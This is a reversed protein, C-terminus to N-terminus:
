ILTLTRSLLIAHFWILSTLLGNIILTKGTFSLDRMKWMNCINRLKHIRANRTLHSCDINGFYLGLIKDPIYDNYWDFDQLRDTRHKFSGAWLGKCKSKNIKAGSAQEYLTLTNFTHLISDDDALLLTTDDAYQTLKVQINTDPPVLGHIHPNARIHTAMIEAMIVYLPASLPCGQRFGRELNFFATLWGNVKVSSSTRCYLTKIWNIFEVGFGFRKLTLFLFNHDVRDFAKLQDITILALPTNKDNAYRLADRILSINDNINRGPINATQDTHIISAIVKSLRLALAKALIKYDTTLLSVPRWNTLKTRDNKKYLLSIIGRKQMLTLHGRLFAENYIFTLKEGFLDWFHKYFNTTLGDIGPSKNNAMKNVADTTEDLTVHGECKDRETDTLIPIDIDFIQTTAEQSTEEATYLQKYFKHTEQIIEYTDTTTTADDRTIKPMSHESQRKKELKFFYKNSKEGEEM